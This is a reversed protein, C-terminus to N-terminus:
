QKKVKLAPPTPTPTCMVVKLHNKEAVKVAGDLWTFDYKGEEPEMAAWAFEGYHTFDFGLSAMKKLDRELNEKPWQEPYHYSGILMLDKKDFFKEAKQAFAMQSSFLVIIAMAVTKLHTVKKKM